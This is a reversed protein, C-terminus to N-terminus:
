HMKQNHSWLNVQTVHHFGMYNNFIIFTEKRTTSFWLFPGRSNLLDQRVEAKQAWWWSRSCSDTLTSLLINFLQWSHHSCRTLHGDSLLTARQETNTLGQDSSVPPSSGRGWSNSVYSHHSQRSYKCLYSVSPSCQLTQRRNFGSIVFM